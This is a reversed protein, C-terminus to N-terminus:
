IACCKERGSPILKIEIPSKFNFESGLSLFRGQYSYAIGKRRM